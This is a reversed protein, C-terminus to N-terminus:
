IKLDGIFPLDAQLCVLANNFFIRDDIYPFKCYSICSESVQQLTAPRAPLRSGRLPWRRIKSTYALFMARFCSSRAPWCCCRGGMLPRCSSLCQSTLKNETDSPALGARLQKVSPSYANLPLVHM